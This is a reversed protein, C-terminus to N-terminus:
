VQPLTELKYYEKVIFVETDRISFNVKINEILKQLEQRNKVEVDIEFDLEALTRDIYIINPNNKAYNILKEFDHMENLIFDIKYYEYGIKEMNIIVRYGQIIEKKELRKIRFAITRPPSKLKSALDILPIKSNKALLMLIKLDLNDYDEIKNSGIIEYKESLQRKEELLYRRKFHYVKSFVHVKENWFFERFNKKFEVWFDDFEYITKVWVFFGLDYISDFKSVVGVKKNEKLWKIIEQEKEKTTNFFKLYVRFSFYGLKSSDIIAYYGQIIGEAEMRKIKYNITNKNLRIKKGIESSSQRCDKDLEYLIKRDKLDLSIM